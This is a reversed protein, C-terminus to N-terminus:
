EKASSYEDVSLPVSSIIYDVSGLKTLSYIGASVVSVGSERMRTIYSGALFFLAASPASLDEGQQDSVTQDLSQLSVLKM